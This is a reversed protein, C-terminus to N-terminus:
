DSDSDLVIVEPEQDMNVSPMDSDKATESTARMLSLDSKGRPESQPTSHQDFYTDITGASRPTFSHATSQRCNKSQASSHKKGATQRSPTMPQDTCKEHGRACAVAATSEKAHSRQFAEQLTYVKAKKAEPLDSAPSQSSSVRSTSTNSTQGQKQRSNTKAPSRTAKKSGPPKSRIAKMNPQPLQGSKRLAGVAQKARQTAEPSVVRSPYTLGVVCQYETMQAATMTWPEHIYKNPVHELEPVYRRIFVGKPDHDKSQKVVSYVRMTNYGTAGSQMQLQPYHIGPEYDLFVQPLSACSHYPQISGNPDTCWSSQRARRSRPDTCWSSQRARSRHNLIFYVSPVTAMTLRQICIM